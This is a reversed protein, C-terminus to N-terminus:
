RRTAAPTRRRMPSLPWARALADTWLGARAFESAVRELHQKRIYLSYDGSYRSANKEMAEIYAELRKRVGPVDGLASQRRALLISCAAWRSPSIPARSDRPAAM